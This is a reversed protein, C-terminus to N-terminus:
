ICYSNLPSYANSRRSFNATDRRLVRLSFIRDSRLFFSAEFCFFSVESISDSKSFGTALIICRLSIMSSDCMGRKVELGVKMFGMLVARAVTGRVGDEMSKRESAMQNM